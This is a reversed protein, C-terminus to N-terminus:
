EPLHHRAQQLPTNEANQVELLKLGDFCHRDWPLRITGAAVCHSPPLALTFCDKSMQIWLNNVFSGEVDLNGCGIFCFLSHERDEENEAVHALM